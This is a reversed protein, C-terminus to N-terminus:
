FHTKTNSGSKIYLSVPKHYLTNINLELHFLRCPSIELKNKKFVAMIQTSVGGKKFEGVLTNSIDKTSIIRLVRDEDELDCSWEKISKFQSIIIQTQKLDNSTNIRASLVIVFLVM